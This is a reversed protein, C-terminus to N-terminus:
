SCRRRCGGLFVRKLLSICCFFCVLLCRKKHNGQISVNPEIPPPPRQELLVDPETQTRNSFSLSSTLHILPFSFFFFFLFSLPVWKDPPPPRAHVTHDPRLSAPQSAPPSAPPLPTSPTPQHNTSRLRVVVAIYCVGALLVLNVTLWVYFSHSKM